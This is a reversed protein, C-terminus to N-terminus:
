ETGGNLASDIVRATKGIYDAYSIEVRAGRSCYWEPFARLEDATDIMAFCIRMYAASSM